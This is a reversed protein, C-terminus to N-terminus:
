DDAEAIVELVKGDADQRTVAVIAGEENRTVCVADRTVCAADQGGATFVTGEPLMELYSYANGVPEFVIPVYGAGDCPGHMLRVSPIGPKPRFAEELVRISEIEGRLPNDDSQGEQVFEKLTNLANSLRDNM